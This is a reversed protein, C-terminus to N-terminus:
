QDTQPNSSLIGDLSDKVVHLEISNENREISKWNFYHHFNVKEHMSNRSDGAVMSEIQSIHVQNSSGSEVKRKKNEDCLTM